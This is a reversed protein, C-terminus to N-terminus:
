LAKQLESAASGFRRDTDTGSADRRAMFAKEAGERRRGVLLLLRERGGAGEGILDRLRPQQHRELDSPARYTRAQDDNQDKPRHSQEKGKPNKRFRVRTMAAMADPAAQM